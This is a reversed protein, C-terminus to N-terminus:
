CEFLFIFPLDTVLVLSASSFFDRLADFDRMSSAFVGISNPRHELRITMIERLLTANIALDAKKGGIDILRAKLWRMLFEFIIALTTGIALTWLSAYAQTPVIRNYVNMTFFISALTLVNAMVTALMSDIYFHRFRWLTGGFWHVADAQTPNLPELAPTAAAKLLLIKEDALASLKEYTLSTVSEDSHTVVFGSRDSSIDTLIVARGDKLSVIAPLM